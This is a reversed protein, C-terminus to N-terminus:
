KKPLHPREGLSVRGAELNLGRLLDHHGLSVASVDSVDRNQAWMFLSSLRAPPVEDRHRGCVVPATIPYMWDESM